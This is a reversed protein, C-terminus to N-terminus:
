CSVILWYSVLTKRACLIQELHKFRQGQEAIYLWV